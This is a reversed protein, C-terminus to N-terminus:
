IRALGLFAAHLSVVLVVFLTRSAQSSLGPFSYRIQGTPCASVCDGCLTCSLGPSGSAVEKPGIAGYRCVPFCRSCGFCGSGIKLRFPSIKGLVAALWGVPCFATCHAMIGMRRSVVAMIVVGAIGFSAALVAAAGAEVDAFRLGIAAALVAVLSAPRLWKWWGPVPAPRKVSRAATEDWAGIYCLHSCWAPGVVLVSVLLLVPMFYGSGRYIPGAVILAPIPLHLKGTMLCETVGGIGLLLQGFFVASFGLWIRRRWVSVNGPASVLLGALLAAYVSLLVVEAWGWGPAFRGALLM